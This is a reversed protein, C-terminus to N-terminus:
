GIAAPACRCALAAPTTALLALGLTMAVAQFASWIVSQGLVEHAVTQPLGAILQDPIRKVRAHEAATLLRLLGPKTPHALKPDTSRNKAYGKTLTPVKTSAATVTQMRFWKGAALDRAEKAKLGAMQSWRADDEGIPDLLEGLQRTEATKVLAAFDFPIGDSVAVLCWRARHELSGFDQGNLTTENLQYGWAKLQGRLIDASASDAYQPVNEFVIVSPNVRAILALAPAILFGVDAHQEPRKTGHKSRGAKSAASCPLGMELIEVLGLDLSTDFAAEQLPAAVALTKNTWASNAEAAHQLLEERLEIAFALESNVGAAKLGSHVAHSMIGGGHCVSGTTLTGTSLKKALRERRECRAVESAMPLIIIERDGFVVRVADCGDFRSLLEKSRLDIVPLIREGKTKQSVVREGGKALRLIIRGPETIVDYGQGPTFGAQATQRGELWVRPIGRNQGIKRVVYAKTDM